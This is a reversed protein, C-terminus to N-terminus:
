MSLQKIPQGAKRIEEGTLIIFCPNSLYEKGGLKLKIRFQTQINGATPRLIYLVYYSKPPLPTKFYSNGCTSRASIQFTKWECDVMIQTEAPYILADCRDILFSDSSNNILYGLIYTSEGRISVNNSDPMLITLETKNCKNFPSEKEISYIEDSILSGPNPNKDAVVIATYRSFDWRSQALSFCPLLLFILLSKM